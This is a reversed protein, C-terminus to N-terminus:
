SLITPFLKTKKLPKRGRPLNVPCQANPMQFFVVKSSILNLDQLEQRFHATRQRLEQIRRQLNVPDLDEESFEKPPTLSRRRRKFSIRKENSEEELSTSKPTNPPSVSHSSASM